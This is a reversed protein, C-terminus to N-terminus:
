AAPLRRGVNGILVLRRDIVNQELRRGFRQDRDRGIWFVQVRADAGYGNEMRPSRRQRMMRVNVHDRWAAADRQVTQLPDGAPRAEKQGHPNERSQETTEEEFLEYDGEIGALQLKEAGVGVERRAISERRRAICERRKERRQARGFPDDVGLSGEASGLCHQGIQSAVRM